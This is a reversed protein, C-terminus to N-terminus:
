KQKHARLKPLLQMFLMCKPLRSPVPVNIPLSHLRVILYRSRGAHRYKAQKTGGQRGRSGHKKETPTVLWIVTVCGKDDKRGFRWIAFMLVRSYGPKGVRNRVLLSVILFVGSCVDQGTRKRYDCSIRMHCLMDWMWAPRKLVEVLKQINVRYEHCSLM